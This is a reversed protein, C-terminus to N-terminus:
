RAPKPCGEKLWQIIDSKIFRLARNKGGKRQGWRVCPILGAEADQYIKSVSLKAFDALEQVTLLEDENM